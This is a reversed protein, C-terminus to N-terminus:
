EPSHLRGYEPDPTYPSEATAQKLENDHRRANRLQANKKLLKSQLAVLDVDGQVLIVARCLTFAVLFSDLFVFGLVLFDVDEASGGVDEASGGILVMALHVVLTGIIIYFLFSLRRAVGQTARTLRSITEPNLEETEFTPLGRGLRFLVAAALISLWVLILAAISLWSAPTLYAATAYGAGLSLAIQALPGIM